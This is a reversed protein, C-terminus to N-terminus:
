RPCGRLASDISRRVDRMLYDRADYRDGGACGSFICRGRTPIEIMLEAVIGDRVRRYSICSEILQALRMEEVTM